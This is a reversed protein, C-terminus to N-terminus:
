SSGRFMLGDKGVLSKPVVAAEGRIVIVMMVRDDHRSLASGFLPDQGVLGCPLRDKFARVGGPLQLSDGKRVELVALDEDLDLVEGVVSAQPVKHLAGDGRLAEIDRGDGDARRHSGADDSLDDLRLGVLELDAIEAHIEM